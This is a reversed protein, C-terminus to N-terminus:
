CSTNQKHDHFFIGDVGGIGSTFRDEGQGVGVFFPGIFVKFRGGLVGCPSRIDEPADSARGARRVGRLPGLM